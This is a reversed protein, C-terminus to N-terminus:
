LARLHWCLFRVVVDASSGQGWKRWRTLMVVCGRRCHVAGEQLFEGGLLQACGDTGAATVFCPMNQQGTGTVTESLGLSTQLFSHYKQTWWSCPYPWALARSCQIPASNDMEPHGTYVCGLSFGRIVFEVEKWWSTRWRASWSVGTSTMKESELLPKLTEWLMWRSLLLVESYEFRFRLVSDSYMHSKNKLILVWVCENQTQSELCEEEKLQSKM